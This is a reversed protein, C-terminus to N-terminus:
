KEEKKAKTKRYSRALWHWTNTGSETFKPLNFIIQILKDVDIERENLEFLEEYITRRFLNFHSVENLLVKEMVLYRENPVKYLGDFNMHFSISKKNQIYVSSWFAFEIEEMEPEGTKLRWVLWRDFLDISSFLIQDSYYSGKKERFSLVLPFVKKRIQSKSVYILDAISDRKNQVDDSLGFKQRTEKIKGDFPQFFKNELCESVSARNIEPNLMLKVLEEGGEFMKRAVIPMLKKIMTLLNNESRKKKIENFILINDPSINEYNVNELSIAQHIHDLIQQPCDDNMMFPYRGATLIYFAVVGLSWVDVSLTYHSSNLVSEPPRFRFNLIKETNTNFPDLLSEFGHDGVRATPKMGQRFIFVNDPKIDRHAIGSAHLFEVGLLIECLIEKFFPLNQVFNTTTTFLESLTSEALPMVISYPCPLLDMFIKKSGPPKRDIGTLIKTEVIFNASLLYPHNQCSESGALDRLGLVGQIGRRGFNIKVAYLNGTDDVMKYVRGFAGEGLLSLTKLKPITICSM